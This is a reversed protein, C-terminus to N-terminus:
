RSLAAVVWFWDLHKFGQLVIVEVIVGVNVAAIVAQSHAGSFGM